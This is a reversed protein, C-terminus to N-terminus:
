GLGSIATAATNLRISSVLKKFKHCPHGVEEFAEELHVEEARLYGPSYWRHPLHLSASGCFRPPQKRRRADRKLTLRDMRSATAIYTTRDHMLEQGKLHQESQRVQNGCSHVKLYAALAIGGVLFFVVNLADVIIMFMPAIAFTENITGATLYILSLMGFVAVFMTYNIISPNGASADAIMNGVLAM